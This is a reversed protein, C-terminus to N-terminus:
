PVIKYLLEKQIDAISQPTFPKDRIFIRVIPHDFVSYTEDAYSDNFTFGLLHPPDKFQAALHFGLKGQLLQQYYYTSMPYRPSLQMIPKDSRDSSMVIVNSTSIATMLKQVKDITDSEYMDLGSMRYFMTPNQGNLAVPLAVDGLEYTIANGAKLHKYMWQSAQILTNPSSYVNLLALGQFITSILVFVTIASALWGWSLRNEQKRIKIARICAILGAAAILTLLPYIPLMYRMFKVYFSGTISAYAVIWTIVIPWLGAQRRCMRYLLWLLGAGAVLGLTPGLGWLLINKAQYVYPITTAFQLIYIVGSNGISMNGQESLNQLFTQWDILAYPMALVFTLCTTIASLGLSILASSLNHRSWRLLIATVIPVALPASSFKTALALGYALGILLAVRYPICTNVLTVCGVLTLMIFFLLMGDVTSYHAQQLEFPTFTVLLAALLPVTWPSFGYSQDDQCLRLGLWGTLLITGSDFIASIYRGVLTLHDMINANPFADALLHGVLALLYIPFSGYYFLHPSLPSTVPNLFQAMSQPWSINHAYAVIYPEDPHFNHGQDWDLDYCRLVLGLGAIGVLTLTCWLSVRQTIAHSKKLLVDLYM